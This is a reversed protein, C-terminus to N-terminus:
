ADERLKELEREFEEDSLGEVGGSGADVGNPGGDDTADEDGLGTEVAPERSADATTGEDREDPALWLRYAVYALAVVLLAAGFLTALQFLWGLLTRVLLFLLGAGVVVAGVKLATGREM